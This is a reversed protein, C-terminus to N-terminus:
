NELIAFVNDEVGVNWYLNSVSAYIKNFDGAFYLFLDLIHIGQDILIGGGSLKKKSRWDNYFEKSVSKGYRGRMWLINGYKKKDIINKMLKISEHHRHNFGYMLIKKSKKEISIIEKMENATFSPPKECFVHKGNQLSKITLKKNLYNPTCVFIIQIENNKLLQNINFTNNKEKNNPDYCFIKNIYKHKKLINYRIKGMKGIGIIGVNYIM